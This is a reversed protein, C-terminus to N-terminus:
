SDDEMWWKGCGSCQYDGRVFVQHGNVRHYQGNEFGRFDFLEGGCRLCVPEEAGERLDQRGRQQRPQRGQSQQPERFPEASGETPDGQPSSPSQQTTSQGASSPEADSRPDRGPEEAPPQDADHEPGGGPQPVVQQAKQYGGPHRGDNKGSYHGVVSKRPKPGYSCDEAPCAVLQDTM